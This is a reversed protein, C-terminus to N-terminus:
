RRPPNSRPSGAREQEQLHVRAARLARIRRRVARIGPPTRRLDGARETRGLRYAHLHHYGNEYLRSRWQMTVRSSFRLKRAAEQQLTSTTFPAAPRRKYPKTEVSRVSFAASQLAAALARAAEENLHTVKSTNLTGNDAFDKGTAIRNGDVAVLKADFGESAATLFRGTLDWYNAAVFAMREREREVVLRTAVSQVRGASLGRGVKRWLVPSIEYGYIRDLIRRTEQADVLHLDIDRLEGFARQIAERTIEPFTMRYVPVKPKLVEKLHWAIAEGERDGDTALYLADVEKLKRKLEAVKKRRTPTSWTTPNSTRKLTSLSKGVPSKKLNEPLESPQPLDRIHGMSSDVLYDEGLYSSITKVKSPSEVILLAKGTKAQAPM